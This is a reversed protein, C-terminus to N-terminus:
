LKQLIEQNIIWFIDKFSELNYTNKKNDKSNLITLIKRIKKKILQDKNLLLDIYISNTKLDHLEKVVVEFKDQNLLKEIRDLKKDINKEKKSFSFYSLNIGCM